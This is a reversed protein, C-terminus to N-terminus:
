LFDDVLRNFADGHEIQTWHGCHGFVHLQSPGILQNLRLSNELPIVRDERGHVILTPHRIRRLADEDCALADIWRQRPAPFMSAFSAQYGPRVSARYRSEVLEPTIRLRDFAFIDMISRMNEVSPEYGWVADLGHTLEFKVGAAGMLVLKRVRHPYRVVMALALAGGFSNGILDAQEIELADLLGILHTVWFDMDYHVGARRETYGFGAMDPAIVRRTDALAPMTLRWNAWATVGPGSGHILLVPSGSGLDHYNTDLGAAQIRQGLEPDNRQTM